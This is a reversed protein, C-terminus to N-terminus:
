CRRDGRAVPLGRTGRLRVRLVQRLLRGAPPIGILSLLFLTLAGALLPSRRALGAYDGVDVAEERGRECLLIAGFAGATTFVYALLYFLVAGAGGRQRGGGAGGAHLRRPRRVLVRADAQSEVPGRGGRQGRDHDARGAVWLIATIDPQAIRLAGGLLRILAAFAAAKSGTAILASSAPPPGRTCTPRGCTSPCRPSRSGSGWSCCGWASWSCPPIPSAPWPRRRGARLQHQGTAGYILAIGYLLFSSAFAGLLFYKMSAESSALRTKFIGAMVYLSLSMVEIALFVVILDNASALLMMGPRRSSSSVTTSAPSRGRAAAPLRAVAPAGPGGRLLHRRQLLARLQRAGADGLVRARGDGLSLVSVLLAVVVGALAVSGVHEKSDRPPLLDLALSSSRRHRLHRPPARPRGPSRLSRRPRGSPAGTVAASPDARLPWVFRLSARPERQGQEGGRRHPGAGLSGDQGHLAASVRRDVRHLAAGPVLM